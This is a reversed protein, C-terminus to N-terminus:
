KGQGIEEKLNDTAYSASWQFKLNACGGLVVALLAMLKEALSKDPM